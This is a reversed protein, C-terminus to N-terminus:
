RRRRRRRRRRKKRSKQQQEEEFARKTDKCAKACGEFAAACAQACRSGPPAAHEVDPAFERCDALCRDGQKKASVLCDDLSRRADVRCGSFGIEKGLAFVPKTRALVEKRMFGAPGKPPVLVLEQEGADRIREVLTGAELWLLPESGAESTVRVEAGDVAVYGMGDPAPADSIGPLIESKKARKPRPAPAKSPTEDPLPPEAVEEPAEGTDIAVPSRSKSGSRGSVGIMTGAVVAVPILVVAVKQSKPAGAFWAGFQELLRAVREGGRRVKPAAKDVMAEVREVSERIRPGVKDERISPLDNTEEAGSEVAEYFRVLEAEVRQDPADEFISGVADVVERITKFRGAPTPALARTLFRELEPPADPCHQRLSRALGGLAREIEEPTATQEFLPTGTLVEYTMLGLRFVITRQDCAAGRVQEPAAYASRGIVAGEELGFGQVLVKGASSVVVSSPCLGRHLLELPRGDKGKASYAYDLADAVKAVVYLGVREPMRVKAKRARALLRSLDSGDVHEQAVFWENGRMVVEAVEVINLHRLALCKEADGFFRARTRENKPLTPLPRRLVLKRGDPTSQDTLYVEATADVGIREVLRYRGVRTDSTVLDTDPANMPAAPRVAPEPAQAALTPAEGSDMRASVRVKAGSGGRHVPPDDATDAGDGYHVGLASTLEDEGALLWKIKAGPVLREIAAVAARDFPDATAVFFSDEGGDRRRAIPLIRHQHATAAPVLELVRAHIPTRVPDITDVGLHKSLTNVLRDETVLGRDVIVKGIRRERSTERLLSELEPEPVLGLEVLM